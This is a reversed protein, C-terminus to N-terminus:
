VNGEHSRVTLVVKGLNENNKLIQHAEEVRSIPLTRDVVPSIAGSAVLAGFRREFSRMMTAKEAVSRARLTSGILRARKKMLISLDVSGQAGTLLSIIVIRGGTNLLQLNRSLYGAGAIDLVVDVGTTYKLINGAFDSDRHFVAREAGLKVCLYQKEPTSATAFVRAGSARALQIAASGVGSAGGHILVTEKRRLGAEVFLNIFATYFAEPFAAATAFSWHDPIKMINSEHVAVREAYGGGALLACVRDGPKFASARASTERVVGSAELGMTEPAGPPPPYKGARQLLDARNVATAFIDILVGGEGPLPDPAQRWSLQQTQPDVHIAFM